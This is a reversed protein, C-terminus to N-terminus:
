GLWSYYVRVRILGDRRIKKAVNLRQAVGITIDMGAPNLVERGFQDKGRNYNDYFAAEAESTCRPLDSWMDRYRRLQWYNDRTNWPGVDKVPAWARTGKGVVTIRVRKGGDLRVRQHPLAVEYNTNGTYFTAWIGCTHSADSVQYTPESEAAYEAREQQWRENVWSELNGAKEDPLLAKVDTKTQAVAEKVKEDFDSADIKDRISANSAEPSSNVIDESKAYESSLKAGQKRVVALVQQVQEDNLGFAKQFEEVNRQDSLVYSLVPKQPDAYASYRQAGVGSLSGLLALGGGVAVGVVLLVMRLSMFHRAVRASFSRM